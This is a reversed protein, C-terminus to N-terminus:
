AVAIKAGRLDEVECRVLLPVQDVLYSDILRQPRGPRGRVVEGVRGRPGLRRKEEVLARFIDRCPDIKPYDAVVGFRMEEESREVPLHASGLRHEIPERAAPVPGADYELSIDELGAVGVPQCTLVLIERNDLGLVGAASVVLGIKRVSQIALPARQ